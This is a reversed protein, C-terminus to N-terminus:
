FNLLTKEFLFICISSKLINTSFNLFNDGHHNINPLLGSILNPMGNKKNIIPPYMAVLSYRLKFLGVRPIKDSIESGGFVQVPCSLCPCLCQSQRHTHSQSSEDSILHFFCWTVQNKMLKQSLHLDDISVRPEQPTTAASWRPFLHNLLTSNIWCEFIVYRSTTPMKGGWCKMMDDNIPQYGSLVLLSVLMVVQQDGQAFCFATGPQDDREYVCPSLCSYSIATTDERVFRITPHHHHGSFFCCCFLAVYTSLFSSFVTERIVSVASLKPRVATQRPQSPFYLLLRWWSLGHCPFCKGLFPNTTIPDPQCM